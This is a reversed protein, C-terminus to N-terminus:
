ENIVKLGLELVEADDLCDVVMVGCCQEVAQSCRQAKLANRVPNSVIIHRSM